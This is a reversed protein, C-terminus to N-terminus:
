GWRRLERQHHETQPVCGTRLQYLASLGPARNRKEEGSAPTTKSSAITNLRFTKWVGASRSPFSGFRKLAPGIKGEGTETETMSPQAFGVVFWLGSARLVRADFCRGIGVNSNGLNPKAHCLVMEWGALWLRIWPGWCEWESKNSAVKVKRQLALYFAGIQPDNGLGPGFWFIVKQTTKVNCCCFTM